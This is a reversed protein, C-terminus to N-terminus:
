SLIGSSAKASAINEYDSIVRPRERKGRRLSLSNKKRTGTGEGAPLLSGLRASGLLKSIVRFTEREWRSLAPTFSLNNM